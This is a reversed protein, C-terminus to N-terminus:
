TDKTIPLAGSLVNAPFERTKKKKKEKEKKEKEEKEGREGGEEKYSSGM